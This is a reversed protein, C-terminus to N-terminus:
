KKKKFYPRLDIIGNQAGLHSIKAALNKAAAKLAERLNGKSLILGILVSSNFVDGIGTTDVKKQEKEIDQHYFDQGDFSM